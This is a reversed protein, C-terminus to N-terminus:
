AVSAASRCASAEKGSAGATNTTEWRVEATRPLVAGLEMTTRNDPQKTLDSAPLSM